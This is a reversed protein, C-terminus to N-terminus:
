RAVFRLLPPVNILVHFRQSSDLQHLDLGTLATAPLGTTLRAGAGPSQRPSAYVCLLAPRASEAGFDALTASASTTSAVSPQMALVAVRPERRVAPTRARPVSRCPNGVFTPSRRTEAPSPPVARDLSVSSRRSPRPPTKSVRLVSSPPSSARGSGVPPFPHVDPRGSQALM